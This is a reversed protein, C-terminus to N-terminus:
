LVKVSLVQVVVVQMLVPPTVSLVGVVAGLL